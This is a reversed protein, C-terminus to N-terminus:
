SADLFGAAQLLTWFSVRGLSCLPHNPELPNRKQHFVSSIVFVSRRSSFISKQRFQVFNLLYVLITCQNMQRTMM